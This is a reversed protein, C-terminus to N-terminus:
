RTRYCICYISFYITVEETPYFGSTVVCALAPQQQQQIVHQSPPLHASIVGSGTEWKSAMQLTEATKQQVTKTEDLLTLEYFEQIDAIYTVLFM